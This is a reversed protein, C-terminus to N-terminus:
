QLEPTTLRKGVDGMRGRNEKLLALENFPAEFCVMKLKEGLNMLQGINKLMSRSSTPEDDASNSVM